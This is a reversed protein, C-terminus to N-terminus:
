SSQIKKTDRYRQSAERWSEQLSSQACQECYKRPKTKSKKILKGCSICRDFSLGNSKWNEYVFALEDFDCEPVTLIVEDDVVDSIFTVYRHEDSVRFPATIYGKNLLSHMFKNRDTSPIHVRALKFINTLAYKYKGNQYGFINKQLKAICLITFLVKEIRIDGSALITDLESKYVVLDDSELLGYNHSAEIKQMITSYLETEVYYSYHTKLWNTIHNYSEDDTLSQVRFNYKAIGSIVHVINDQTVEGSSLVREIDKKESFTLKQM